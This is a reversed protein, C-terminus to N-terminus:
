LRPLLTALVEARAVWPRYRATGAIVEWCASLIAQTFSWALIRERPYGLREALIDARRAFQRAPATWTEMRGYPNNMLAGTEFGPDGVLGKPDIALWPVRQASVINDHHLDGHLVREYPASALLEVALGEARSLMGEPLPGAGGGHMERVRAFARLRRAVTIFSHTAPVPRWLVRMLEAAIGTAEDDDELRTLPIGPFAREMLLACHEADAELLRVAGDGDCLRLFAIGTRAEEEPVGVKLVALSGDARVVPAVYNFSLPAFPPLLELQWERAYQALLDPLEVLWAAGRAGFYEAIFAAFDSPVDPQDNDRSM